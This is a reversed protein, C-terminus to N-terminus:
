DTIIGIRPIAPDLLSSALLQHLTICGIVHTCVIADPQFESIYRSMKRKNMDAFAYPFYSKMSDREHVREADQYVQDLLRPYKRAMLTYGKDYATGVVKNLYAYVDLVHCYAGSKRLEDQVARAASNHGQGAKLSLILIRKVKVTNDSM